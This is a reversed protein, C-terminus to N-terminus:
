YHNLFKNHHTNLAVSVLTVVKILPHYPTRQGVMLSVVVLVLIQRQGTEGSVNGVEICTRLTFIYVM